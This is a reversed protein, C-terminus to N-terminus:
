WKFTVSLKSNRVLPLRLYLVSSDEMVTVRSLYRYGPKFIFGCPLAHVQYVKM